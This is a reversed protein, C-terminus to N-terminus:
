LEVDNVPLIFDLQNRFKRTHSFAVGVDTNRVVGQSQDILLFLLGLFAVLLAVTADAFATEPRKAPRDTNRFAYILVINVGSELITNQRHTQGLVGLRLIGETLDSNLRAFSRVPQRLAKGISTRMM